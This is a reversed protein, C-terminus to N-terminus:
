RPKYKYKFIYKEDMNSQTYKSKQIYKTDLNFIQHSFINLWELNLVDIHNLFWPGINNISYLYM